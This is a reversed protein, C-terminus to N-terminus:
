KKRAPLNREPPNKIQEAGPLLKKPPLRNGQDTKRMINMM